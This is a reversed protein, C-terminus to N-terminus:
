FSDVIKVLKYCYYKQVCFVKNWFNQYTPIWTFKELLVTHNCLRISLYEHTMKM